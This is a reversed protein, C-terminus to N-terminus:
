TEAPSGFGQVQRTSFTSSKRCVSDNNFYDMKKANIAFVQKRDYTKLLAIYLKLLLQSKWYRRELLLYFSIETWRDACFRCYTQNNSKAQFTLHMLDLVCLNHATIESSM